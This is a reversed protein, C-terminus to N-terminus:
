LRQSFHYRTLLMQLLVLIVLARQLFRVPVAVSRASFNQHSSLLLDCLEYHLNHSEFCDGIHQQPALSPLETSVIMGTDFLFKGPSGFFKIFNRSGVLFGLTM